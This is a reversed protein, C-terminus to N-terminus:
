KLFISLRLCDRTSTLRSILYPDKNCGVHLSLASQSSKISSQLWLPPRISNGQIAMPKLSPCQAHGLLLLCLMVLRRGDSQNNSAATNEKM